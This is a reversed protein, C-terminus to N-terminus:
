ASEEREHEAYKEACNSPKTESFLHANEPLLAAPLKPRRHHLEHFLLSSAAPTFRGAFPRLFRTLRPWKEPLLHPVKAGIIPVTVTIVVVTGLYVLPAPQRTLVFALVLAAAIAVDLFTEAAQWVRARKEAKWSLGRAQLALWPGTLLLKWTAIFVVNGERDDDELCRAHHELHLRRLAHGSKILFLAYFALLWDNTRNSFSLANHILDHVLVSAALVSAFAFPISWMWGVFHEVAVFAALFVLPRALDLARLGRGLESTKKAASANANTAAM